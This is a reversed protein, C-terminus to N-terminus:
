AGSVLVYTFIAVVVFFLALAIRRGWVARQVLSGHQRHYATGRGLARVNQSRYGAIRGLWWSRRCYVYDAIESARVYNESMHELEVACHCKQALTLGMEKNFCDGTRSDLM